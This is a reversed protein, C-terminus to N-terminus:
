PTIAALPAPRVLPRDMVRLTGSAMLALGVLAVLAADAFLTPRVGFADIAAGMVLPGIAIGGLIGLLYYSMTRGRLQDPAEVQILSNVQVAFTLHALGGVFYGAVGIAYSRSVAIIVPAAIFLALAVLMMRSRAFRHTMPRAILSALFAGIGLATLLGASETSKRGFATEAIAAAVYQLSQGTFATFLTLLVALRIAAHHWVYRAGESFASLSNRNASMVQPNPRVVLLVGIVLLYTAANIFIAAGVGFNAVVIGATAPGVVRAVTFQTSNLRVAELMESAPVLSPVFVQWTSTQFGTAIGNIFGIAVISAPGIHGSEYLAWLGFTAVMAVSQTSILILRRNVRDSLVGAWPTLLVAPAMGALTSIGLWSAKHTLDFLLAPVAVLQM